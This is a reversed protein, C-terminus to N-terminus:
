AKRGRVREWDVPSPRRRERQPRGGRAKHVAVRIAGPDVEALRVFREVMETLSEQQLASRMARQMSKTDTGAAHAIQAYPIETPPERLQSFLEVQRQRLMAEYALVLRRETSVDVLENLLAIAADPDTAM